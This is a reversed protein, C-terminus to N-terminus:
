SKLIEDSLELIEPTLEKKTKQAIRRFIPYAPLMIATGLIGFLFALWMGGNLVGLGFCMGIGFVLLGIIGVTLSEIQGACRVKMDLRKLRELKSEEKPLYKSRILEVERKRVSSYSYVFNQEEM